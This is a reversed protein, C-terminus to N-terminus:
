NHLLESIKKTLDARFREPARRANAFAFETLNQAHEDGNKDYDVIILSSWSVEYKDALAEEKQIDVSRFVLEGSKLEEAYKTEMVEKTGKEIAICTACRQKGYFYLVEVVSKKGKDVAIGDGEARVKGCASIGLLLACMLLVKNM